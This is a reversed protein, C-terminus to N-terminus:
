AHDIGRLWRSARGIPSCVIRSARPWEDDETVFKLLRRVRRGFPFAFGSDSVAMFRGVWWLSRDIEVCSVDIEVSVCDGAPQPQRARGDSPQTSDSVGARSSQMVANKPTSMRRLELTAQRRLPPTLPLARKRVHRSPGIPVSFICAIPSAHAIAPLGLQASVARENGSMRCGLSEVGRAINATHARASPHLPRLSGELEFGTSGEWGM